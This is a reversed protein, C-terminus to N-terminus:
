LEFSAGYAMKSLDYIKPWLGGETNALRRKDVARLQDCVAVPLACRFGDRIM